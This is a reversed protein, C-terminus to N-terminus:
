KNGLCSFGVCPRPPPPPASGQGSCGPCSKDNEGTDPNKNFNWVYWAVVNGVISYPAEGNLISDCHRMCSAREEKSCPHDRRCEYYCIDHNQCAKDTGGPWPKVYQFKNDPNYPEFKGGTWNPGCWMGWVPLQGQPDRLNIPNNVAYKYFNEGGTFGMPDETLFRGINPDYYRARYYDLGTESDPERATYQFPNTVSGSSATLKGFSDFTYAQSVAGVASSLSTVSDLGDVEYYSTAGSRVMGLPEDTNLGQSYRAVVTGSTNTEEILNAGDYAFISTGASSSKYIRRGSPDYKFSVTGGSGPLTVSALRNEYDWAYTTTGTSDTKSTTNGNADYSYIANPTSSLENSSNYSYPSVGLSSLRNGVPDYAYAETTNSGQLVQTLEYINDYAYNSTVGARNDTKATRNGAADVTYTAGDVTSLGAQHLVSLLRSLNDYSYNSNIGNPRTMQTRRSLADYSFGFSGAWSNGLATLRNLSDYSYTNTSGDPATFGTRNSVADYTYANAFPTNPLFSYTTTTGTLRGMNDYAFSYTGTPDNVQLVKGVLDCTYEVETSDPYEEESLRNLADYVYQITQNKRDTKSTPNGVADYTYTELVNSPFTTQTVRGFADYTFSTVHSNADTISLLNNETDHAYQTVHSAADTVSTLRDADDYAYSTTKGNQDTASIRRGRYDYTFTATTSDPYTIATLRNGSDYAFSTVHSLADTVSTRNGRTDYQYSTVNNQPDTISAILGASTYTIKTIRGLPDTVQTLEGLSNYAFQTVSAATNGNPAPTTVTLLNGHSDYTNTTVHGVPDTMTLVEGFSNYTYTTQPNTGNVAPQTVSAVNNGSDYTYSTTRGLEDTRSLVNGNADNQYQINGRVTCSSCGSGQANSVYWKGGAIVSTYNSQNGLSDTLVVAKSVTFTPGTATIGAVQVTVNGTSAGQPVVAIIQTDNWSSVSATVGDFTVVSNSQTPGFGAGTVAVSSGVPGQTPSIGAISLPEIITLQASNSTYGNMTVTVPGSTAGQPVTFTIGTDSWSNIAPQGGSFNVASQSAGFGYGNIVVRGAVPAAPPALNTITPNFATFIVNSNSAVSSVTVIVPGTRVTSPVTAVIQNNSWSTISGAPTGNFTLTSTGQTTGFSAGYVTVSTNAPGSSPSVGTITPLLLGSRIVVNDFTATALASTNNSTVGLGIYVNTAMSVTQSTGIQTWNVGDPSAYSSFTNGSRVLKEWYPLNVSSLNQYSSYGGTTARYQFYPYSNYTTAAYTSSPTLTERVMVGAGTSNNTESVVRAVISGDGSLPQYAFHMKESTSQFSWSGAGQVTFTGNAYTASGALSVSGIDADLWGTPLPQSTVTFIVYNSDNMSPAVCVLMPGSTAGSPITVSISTAGWSNIPLSAGSLTVMSGNQSGGFGSGNIAVQSGVSGTTASVSTIVPGPSATSSISVNDFTATALASTSNSSVGLGIYVNTAMTITQSTGIQTWNVGDPSAYSSFTNGSRVLKVWYPLNVNSLYQYNSYGGTTARYQFYPYSNYTTAAYTSSPTLTERIMVGAGTSSTSASVMRAVISGDGSLPQYAFHVKESTSQFSWSGAGQVTFTGNAYTASGAVGVLGIDADLWGAPLPQSTVTFIVYNSDDMSPAVSVLMPGSTAGSPITINIATASWFNIPVVAGNLTVVSGNQSAGFGSGTIVVQSGVSGTTASVTTIVPAPVSSTSVSVNDFTATALASTNNSSVGLGVYVNTAMTITQSTGIQTWNVGDPSAYSSFTNGSRVLKVWYPLNVNSLYQYNSYGGTTTRYQFYPYSNYTTAAYTSGPGLTERIMVGAGTSSTSASVMRTVISGDGSLPQYAFHMKESTSQFSWSGAGQVTFTGNAYTASGAVGVLGIDADLWGAPLPQSTVTFIVYNSDNMSPAVSVLMPGSTAGSPITINIATASWFNIPVVAGNLTVVSGNQSIGFGSGTIVVQSGVPGTTASVSTIAPGPVSPTSISVNDFTATALASNSGSALALGIYVNQAMNITQSTGIQTWNVGDPSAYSSFTSGSRVTKVWYPLTMNVGGPETTSGGTTTRLDFYTEAYGVWDATKANTSGTNLTERIMVGVAASSSAGQVSVIRGVITGDGSLPQYVFHMQDTTYWIYNGSAKVTFTGNAYTASGALGVSGVDGDSWGSPLATITFVSSNATENNVTVSFPGSAAGSPVVVGISTDSWATVVAATGNLSATSTSQSTGFNLGTITVESGVPGSNPSIGTITLPGQAHARECFMCLLSFAALIVLGRRLVRM